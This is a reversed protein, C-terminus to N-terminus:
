KQKEAAPNGRDFGIIMGQISYSDTNVIISSGIKVPYAGFYLAGKEETCKLEFLCVVDKGALNPALFYDSSRVNFLNMTLVEPPANSIIKKLVGMANGDSDKIVDGEHFADALEPMISNFKVRVPIERYVKVVEKKSLAKYGLCFVPALGILSLVVLFDIINIKGFIRGKDDIFKM